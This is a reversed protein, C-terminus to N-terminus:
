RDGADLKVWRLRLANSVVFVSSVSMAAGALMPSPALWSALPTLLGAAAPLLAANYGFAWVLNWRINRMTARALRISRPVGDLHDRLLVVDGSDLAVDTASGMAMGVTASALAPADNLGDGVFLVRRGASEWTQILAAKTAPLAEAHWEPIGLVGATAEVASRGDGSLLVVKLGQAQLARVAAAADPRPPDRFAFVALPTGDLAACITSAGPVQLDKLLADFAAGQGTCEDLWSRSGVLVQRGDITARIGRGPVVETQAPVTPSLGRATGGQVLARGFPHESSREASMAWQWAEAEDVGPACVTAVVELRGETLTGTKDFVVTDVDALGQLAAAQRFLIGAQAGRSTAVFLSIPTALGMACPCAVVLVAVMHWVATPVDAVIFWTIGTVAAIALVIPVFREVVRDALQQIPPRSGQALEVLQVIRALVTDAGVRTARVQLPATRNLTGGTVPQGQARTIPVPEGTLMSEDVDSVGEVVVGDVPVREGARVLLRDGVRVEAIDLEELADGVMRTVRRPRMAVLQAVADGARARARVELWKGLLVLAIVSASAEVFSAHRLSAFPLVATSWAWAVTSGLVVLTNMDVAGTRFAQWAHRYFWRGPVWQVFTAGLWLPIAVRLDTHWHMLAPSAMLTMAVVTVPAAVSGALLTLHRLEALERDRADAEGARLGETGTARVLEYGADSLRAALADFTADDATAHVQLRETALTVEATEIGPVKRAVREVRAVCAACTMGRVGFTYTPSPVDNM